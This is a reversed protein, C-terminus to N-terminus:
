ARRSRSRQAADYSNRAQEVKDMNPTWESLAAFLPALSRGLDTIEYEVRPPVEAYYARTVLGDRELQRLRQTLVKPTITTIRRELEVFRMRGSQHLTWLIPTTWRSFVLDVVPSVPCANEPDAAPEPTRATDEAM